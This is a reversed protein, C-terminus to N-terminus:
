SDRVLVACVERGASPLHALRPAGIRLARLRELFAPLRAAQDDGSLKLTLIAARLTPRVPPLLREIGHLAVQPALNVDCLLLTPHQPLQEWRVDGLTTALHIFRGHEAVAPAVAGTDIGWVQVGRELLALAAGGPACGVDIAVDRTGPLIGGFRLAEQLKGYARSPAHAPVEARPWGGPAPGRREDHAHIGVMTADGPAVIADVVLSGRTPDGERLAMLHLLEGRLDTVAAAADPGEADARPYAHLFVGRALDDDTLRARLLQVAHAPSSAPGLSAGWTRAFPSPCPLAATPPEPVRFTVIGPRAYSSRWAPRTTAVGLKLWREFGRACTAFAFPSV